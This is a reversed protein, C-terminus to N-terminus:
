LHGALGTKNEEKSVSENDDEEEAAGPDTCPFLLNSKWKNADIVCVFKQVTNVKLTCCYNAPYLTLLSLTNTSWPRCAGQLWLLM